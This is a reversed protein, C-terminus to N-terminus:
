SINGAEKLWLLQVPKKLRSYSFNFLDGKYKEVYFTKLEEGRSM